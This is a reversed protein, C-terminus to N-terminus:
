KKSKVFMDLRRYAGALSGIIQSFQEMDSKTCGQGITSNFFGQIGNVVHDNTQSVTAVESPALDSAIEVEMPIIQEVMRDGFPMRVKEPTQNFSLIEVDADVDVLESKKVTGTSSHNFLSELSQQLFPQPVDQVPRQTSQAMYPTPNQYSQPLLPVQRQMTQAMYPISSQSSQPLPPVPRQIPNQYSQPLLPVQRQMTQAMYPIPSPQSVHPIPHVPHQVQVNPMSSQEHPISPKPDPFLVRVVSPQNPSQVKVPEDNGVSANMSALRMSASREQREQRKQINEALIREHRDDMEQLFATHRSKISEVTKELTEEGRWGSNALMSKELPDKTERIKKKLTPSIAYTVGPRRAGLQAAFTKPRTFVPKKKGASVDQM